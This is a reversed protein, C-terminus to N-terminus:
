HLDSKLNRRLATRHRDHFAQGSGDRAERAARFAASSPCLNANAQRIAAPGASARAAVSYAPRRGPVSATQARVSTQRRSITRACDTEDCARRPSSSPGPTTRRMVTMASASSVGLSRGGRLFRECSGNGHAVATMTLAARVGVPLNRPASFSKLAVSARRSRRGRPRAARAADIGGGDVFADEAVDDAGAEALRRRPLRREM